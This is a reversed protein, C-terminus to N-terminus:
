PTATPSEYWGPPGTEELLSILSSRARDLHNRVDWEWAPDGVDLCRLLHQASLTHWYAAEAWEHAVEAREYLDLDPNYAYRECQGVNRKPEQVQDSRDAPTERRIDEVIYRAGFYVLVGAFFLAIIWLVVQLYRKM